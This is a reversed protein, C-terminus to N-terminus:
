EERNSVPKNNFLTQLVPSIVSWSFGRRALFQAIKQRQKLVDTSKRSATFKKMVKEAAQLASSQETFADVTDHLVTDITERQVGKLMLQQRLLRPGAPKRLQADHVFARAFKRDDLLNLSQLHEIVKNITDPMFEKEALKLRLEKETRLRYGIFRLAIQKARTFEETSTISQYTQEDLQDGKRLGYRALVEEDIGFAFEGDIDISYRRPNRKQREINTVIM